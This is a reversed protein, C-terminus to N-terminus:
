LSPPGTGMAQITELVRHAAASRDRCRPQNACRALSCSGELAARWPAWLRVEGPAKAPASCDSVGREHERCGLLHGGQAFVPVLEAQLTLAAVLGQGRAPMGLYSGSPRIPPLVRGPTAQPARWPEGAGWPCPNGPIMTPALVQHWVPPCALGPARVTAEFAAAAM